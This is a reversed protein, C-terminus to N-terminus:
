SCKGVRSRKGSITVFLELTTGRRILTVRQFERRPRLSTAYNKKEGAVDANLEFSLAGTSELCAWLLVWPASTGSRFKVTGEM